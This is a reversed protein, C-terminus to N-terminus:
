WIIENMGMSLLRKNIKKFVYPEDLSFLSHTPHINKLAYPSEPKDGSLWIINDKTYLKLLIEKLFNCAVFSYSDLIFVGQKCWRETKGDLTPFFGSKKIKQYIDATKESFVADESIKSSIGTNYLVVKVDEFSTLCFPTILDQDLLYKLIDTDEGITELMWMAWDYKIRIFLDSM